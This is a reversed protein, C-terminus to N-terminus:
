NSAPTRVIEVSCKAHRAVFESVSGLLFRQIGREGHSGVVVLDAHWETAYDIISERVDGFEVRGEAKFGADRLETSIREVLARALKNEYELEPAYRPSMQPPPPGVPQLVHLVLVETTSAQCQTIISRSLDGAFKSDDVAVLVRM